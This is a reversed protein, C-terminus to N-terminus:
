LLLEWLQGTSGAGCHCGSVRVVTGAAGGALVTGIIAGLRSGALAMLLGAVLLVASFETVYLWNEGIGISALVVLPDAGATELPIRGPLLTPQYLPGRIPTRHILAAVALAFAAIPVLALSARSGLDPRSPVRSHSM